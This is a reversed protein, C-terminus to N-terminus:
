TRRVYLSSVLLCQKSDDRSCVPWWQSLGLVDIVLSQDRAGTHQSATTPPACLFAGQLSFPRCAHAGVYALGVFTQIPTRAVRGVM